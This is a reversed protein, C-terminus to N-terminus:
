QLENMRTVTTIIKLAIALSIKGLARSPTQRLLSLQSYKLNIVYGYISVTKFDGLLLYQFVWEALDFYGRPMPPIPM